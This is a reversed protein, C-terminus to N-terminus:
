FLLWLSGLFIATFVKLGFVLLFPFGLFFFFPLVVIVTIWSLVGNSTIM